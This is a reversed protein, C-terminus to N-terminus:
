RFYHNQRMKRKPRHLTKIYVTFEKPSYFSKMFAVLDGLPIFQNQYKEHYERQQESTLYETFFKYWEKLSSHIEIISELQELPIVIGISAFLERISSQIVGKCM